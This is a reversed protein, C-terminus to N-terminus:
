LVLKVGGGIVKEFILLDKKEGGVGKKAMSSILALAKHVNPLCGVM